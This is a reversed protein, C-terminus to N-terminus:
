GNSTGALQLYIVAARDMCVLAPTTSSSFPLVTLCPTHLPHLHIEEWEEIVM